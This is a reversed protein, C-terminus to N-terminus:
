FPRLQEAFYQLGPMPGRGLHSKSLARRRLMGIAVDKKSTREDWRCRRLCCPTTPFVGITPSLTCMLLVSAFEIVALPVFFWAGNGVVWPRVAIGLSFM